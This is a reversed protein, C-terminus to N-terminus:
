VTCCPYKSLTKGLNTQELQLSESLIHLTVVTRMTNHTKFQYLIILQVVLIIIKQPVTYYIM